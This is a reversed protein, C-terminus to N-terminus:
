RSLVMTVRDKFSTEDQDDDAEDYDEPPPQRESM